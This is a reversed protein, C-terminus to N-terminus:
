LQNKIENMRMEAIKYYRNSLENNKQIDDKVFDLYAMTDKYERNNKNRKEKKNKVNLLYKVAKKYDKKNFEFIFTIRSNEPTFYILGSRDGLSYLSPNLNCFTIWRNYTIPVIRDDGLAKEQQLRNLYNKYNYPSGSESFAGAFIREFSNIIGYIYAPLTVFVLPGFIAAAIKEEDYDKIPTLILDIIAAIYTIILFKLM